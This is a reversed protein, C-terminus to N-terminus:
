DSGTYLLASFKFNKANKDAVYVTLVQLRSGRFNSKSFSNVNNQLPSQKTNNPNGDQNDLLEKHLLTHYKQRCGDAYCRFESQCEKLMHVKSLCNFCLKQEKVFNKREIATKWKFKITEKRKDPSKPTSNHFSNVQKREKDKKQHKNDTKTKQTAM